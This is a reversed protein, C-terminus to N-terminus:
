KTREIKDLYRGTDKLMDYDIKHLSSKKVSLSKGTLETIIEGLEPQHSVFLIPENGLYGRMHPWQTAEEYSVFKVDRIGLVEAMIEATEKARLYESAVLKKPLPWERKLMAHAVDEVQFRGEHTLARKADTEAVDEAKGHRMLYLIM